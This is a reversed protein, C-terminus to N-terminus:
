FDKNSVCICASELIQEVFLLRPMDEGNAQASPLHKSRYMFSYRGLWLTRNLMVAFFFFVM